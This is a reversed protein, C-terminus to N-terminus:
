FKYGLAIKISPGHNLVSINYGTDKIIDILDDQSRTHANIGYGLISRIYSRDTIVSDIGFGFNFVFRDFYNKDIGIIFLDSRKVELSYNGQTDKVKTFIQWDFGIFPYLKNKRISFPYKGMLGINFYYQKEELGIGNRKIIANYFKGGLDIEFYTCDLYFWFGTRNLDSNKLTDEVTSKDLEPINTDFSTFVPGFDGGFGISTNFGTAYTTSIALGLFMLVSISSKKMM